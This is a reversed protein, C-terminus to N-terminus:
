GKIGGLMVGKQFYKQAFPYFAFLPVTSVIIIAYKISVKVNASQRTIYIADAEEPLETLSEADVLIQKLFLQLPYLEKTKLYLFGTFYSNWMGVAYWLALVAIVAKSLPLVMSIFFRFDDCGDIQSAELMEIPINSRMFSRAVIMNYVSMAGPLLMAWVTDMIGLNKVLIYSPIMGGSFLMTFSFIFSLVSQGPLDRRSLPYACILTVILNITTGVITYFITNRYGTWLSTYSFLLEYAETSFGVPLLWVKGQVLLDPDSISASIIYIIPYLVLLTLVVALTDCVVYFLKDQRSIKIGTKSM